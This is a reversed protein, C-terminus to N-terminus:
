IIMEIKSGSNQKHVVLKSPIRQKLEVVHSIIGVMRGTKELSTLTDVACDLSQIDLSGFGEDIFMTEISIGGAYIQVIQALGLALCLSAQFSEGGSLTKIDRAKGTYCDIIDMDLGSQKRKDDELKSKLTYRNNTMKAFYINSISLINEFYSALIYREFSLKQGNTGKALTSLDALITHEGLLSENKRYIEQIASLNQKTNALMVELKSKQNGLTQQEVRLNEAQLELQAIDKKEQGAVEKLSQIGITCKQVQDQYAQVDSSLNELQNAHNKYDNYQEYSFGIKCLSQEFIQNKEKFDIVCQGIYGDASEIQTAIRECESKLSEYAVQTQSITNSITQIKSQVDQQKTEITHITIKNEYFYQNIREQHQNELELKQQIRAKKTHLQTQKETLNVSDYWQEQDLKQLDTIQALRTNSDEIEQQLQNIQMNHAQLKESIQTIYHQTDIFVGLQELKHLLLTIEQKNQSLYADAQRQKQMQQEVQTLPINNQTHLAPQPHEKSGCVPCPCNAGLTDALLNAQNELYQRYMQNYIENEKKVDELLGYQEEQLGLIQQMYKTIEQLITNEKQKEARQKLLDFVGEQRAFQQLEQNYKECQEQHKAMKNKNEKAEELMISQKQLQEKEAQLRTLQEKETQVKTYEPKLKELTAIHEEKEKTLQDIRSKLSLMSDETIKLVISQEICNIQQKQQLFKEEQSELEKKKALFGQYDEIKQNIAQENEINIKLRCATIKSLQLEIQQLEQENKLQTPQVCQVIFDPSAHKLNEQALCEMCGNAQLSAICQEIRTLNGSMKLDLEKTREELKQTAEGYIQTGFITSLIKAKDTSNSELLKKFEGQALMVIKRFQEYDIGLLEQIKANVTKSKSLITGDPLTLEAKEELIKEQLDRKLATQKPSRFIRYDQNKITFELEVYCKCEENAHHSKFTQSERNKGSSEGFLAFSIADFITTKGAGTDGCILFLQSSFQSFDIEQKGSYSCFANLILKKPKM